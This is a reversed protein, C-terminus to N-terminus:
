FIINKEEIDISRSVEEAWKIIEEETDVVDSMMDGDNYTVYFVLKFDNEEPQVNLFKLNGITLENIGENVDNFLFGDVDKHKYAKCIKM